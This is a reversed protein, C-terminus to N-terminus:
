PRMGGDLRLSGLVDSQKPSVRERGAVREVMLLLFLMPTWSPNKAPTPDETSTASMVTLEEATSDNM